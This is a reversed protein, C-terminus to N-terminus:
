IVVHQMEHKLQSVTTPPLFTLHYSSLQLTTCSGCQWGFLCPMFLRWKVSCLFLSRIPETSFVVQLIQSTLQKVTALFLFRTGRIFMSECPCPSDTTSRILKLSSFFFLFFPTSVFYLSTNRKNKNHSKKKKVLFWWGSKEQWHPCLSLLIMKIKLNTTGKFCFRVIIAGLFMLNLFICGTTRPPQWMHCINSTYTSAKHATTVNLTSVTESSRQHHCTSM